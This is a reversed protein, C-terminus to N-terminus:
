AGPSRVKAPLIRGLKDSRGKAFGRPPSGFPLSFSPREEEGPVSAAKVLNRRYESLDIIDVM